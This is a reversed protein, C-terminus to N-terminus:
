WCGQSSRGAVSTSVAQLTAPRLMHSLRSQLSPPCPPAPGGRTGSSGCAHPLGPGCLCAPPPQQPRATASSVPAAAWLGPVNAVLHHQLGASWSAAQALPSDRRGVSSPPPRRSHCLACRRCSTKNGRGLSLLGLEGGPRGGPRRGEGPESGKGAQCGGWGEAPVAGGHARSAAGGRRQHTIPSPRTPSSQQDGATKNM